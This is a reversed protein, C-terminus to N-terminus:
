PVRRRYCGSLADRTHRSPVAKAAALWHWASLARGSWRVSRPEPIPPIAPTYDYTISGTLSGITALTDGTDPTGAFLRLMTTGTGTFLDFQNSDASGLLDVTIAGPTFFNDSGTLSGDTATLLQLGLVPNGASSTWTASGTLDTTVGTLTGLSPNFEPFGTTLFTNGVDGGTLTTTPITLSATEMISAAWVAHAAFGGAAIVMLTLKLGRM